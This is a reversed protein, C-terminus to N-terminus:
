SLGFREIQHGTILRLQIETFEKLSLSAPNQDFPGPCTVSFYGNLLKIVPFEEGM